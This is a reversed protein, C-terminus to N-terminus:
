SFNSQNKKYKGFWINAAVRCATEAAQMSFETGFTEEHM